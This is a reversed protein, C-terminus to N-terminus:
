NLTIYNQATKKLNTHKILKLRCAFDLIREKYALPPFDELTRAQRRM